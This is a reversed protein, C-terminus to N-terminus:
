RATANGDTTSSAPQSISGGLSGGPASRPRRRGAGSSIWSRIGRTTRFGPGKREGIRRPQQARPIEDRDKPDRDEQHGMNKHKPQQHPLLPEIGKSVVNASLRRGYM